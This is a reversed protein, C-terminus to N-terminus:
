FFNDFLFTTQTILQPWSFQNQFDKGLKKNLSIIRYSSVTITYVHTFVGRSFNAFVIFWTVLWSNHLQRYVSSPTIVSNMKSNDSM